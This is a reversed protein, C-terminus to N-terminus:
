APSRPGGRLARAMGLVVTTVRAHRLRPYYGSTQVRFVWTPDLRGVPVRTRGYPGDDRGEINFAAAFGLDSAASQAAPSGRSFPFALFRPSRGLVDSLVGVSRELDVRADDFSATSLDVHAHGHSEVSLGRSDATRLEEGSMVELPCNYPDDWRNRDGIFRTPVFVTAPFGFDELIPLAYELVSTYGDDFTIAVVPKRSSLSGAVIRDLSVVVRHRALFGMQERFREPSVFLLERDDRGACYGVAHYALVTRRGTLM